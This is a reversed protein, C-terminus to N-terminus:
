TPTPWRPWRRSAAIATGDRGSSRMCRSRDSGLNAALESFILVNGGGGHVLVLPIVGPRRGAAGPTVPLRRHASGSGDIRAALAQLTPVRSITALPLEVDFEEAIRLFLTVAALSDGGLDFFDADPPLHPFELVDAWIAALKRETDTAYDPPEIASSHRPDPL